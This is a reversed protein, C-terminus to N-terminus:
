SESFPEYHGNIGLVEIKKKDMTRNGSKTRSETIRAPSGNALSIDTTATWSDDRGSQQSNQAQVWVAMSACFTSCLISKLLLRNRVSRHSKSAYRSGHASREANSTRLLSM